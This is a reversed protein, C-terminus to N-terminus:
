CGMRHAEISGVLLKVMDALLRGYGNFCFHPGFPQNFMFGKVGSIPRLKSHGSGTTACFVAAGGEPAIMANGSLAPGTEDVVAVDCVPFASVVTVVDCVPFASVVIVFM